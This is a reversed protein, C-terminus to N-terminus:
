SRTTARPACSANRRTLSTLPSTAALPAIRVCPVAKAAEVPSTGGYMAEAGLLAAKVAAAAASMGLAALLRTLPGQHGVGCCLAAM